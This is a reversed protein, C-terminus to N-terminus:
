KEGTDVTALIAEEKTRPQWGLVKKAKSNSMKTYLEAATPKLDAIKVAKEPREKKIIQAIDYLSVAGDSTALFRQGNAEPHMMAEIHIDAVDRVDVIGFTIDPNETIMGEIIPKIAGKYAAPYINGIIPGFIGVPNIVALELGGGENRIFDWAAKEALTKSKAYPKVPSNEDTWDEETFVHDKADISYGIAVYSSTLVVRKVGADRSAKLVRLSGDRAPIILQNEDEPEVLPFPSAVHLVYTCDKVAEEWGADANLDAKHFTLNEFNSIGAEKLGNMVSEKKSLSRLTTKVTYGKQLLQSITHVGVFGSGGTVLVTQKNM